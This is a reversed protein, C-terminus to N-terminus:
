VIYIAAHGMLRKLRPQRCTHASRRDGGDRAVALPQTNGARGAASAKREANAGFKRSRRQAATEDNTPRAVSGASSAFRLPKLRQAVGRSPSRPSCPPPPAAVPTPLQGRPPLPCGRSSVLMWGLAAASGPLVLSECHHHSEGPERVSRAPVAGGPVRVCVLEVFASQFGPRRRCRRRGQSIGQRATALLPRM